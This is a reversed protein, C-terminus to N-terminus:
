RNDVRRGDIVRPEDAPQTTPRSRRDLHSTAVVLGSITLAGTCGAALALLPRDAFLAGGLFGLLAAQTAWILVGLGTYWRFRTTPYHVVPGIRRATGVPRRM